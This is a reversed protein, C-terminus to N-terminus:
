KISRKTVCHIYPSFFKSVPLRVFYKEFLFCCLSVRVLFGNLIKVLLRKIGFLGNANLVGYNTSLFYDCYEIELGASLCETVLVDKSLVPNHIKYVNYNTIKSTLGISGVMNPIITIVCGDNKLFKHLIKMINSTNTFHEIVGYSFVFDFQGLLDAPPNFLDACVINGEINNTILIDRARDCGQQSYDLGSVEMGHELQFYPLWMSDGCGVELIKKGKANKLYQSLFEHQRQFVYNKISKDSVDYLKNKGKNAWLEDWYSHQTINDKM